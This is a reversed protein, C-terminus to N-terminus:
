DEAWASQWLDFTLLGLLVDANDERYHEHADILAQVATPEFLGKRRVRDAALSDRLLERLEHRFWRGVPCGFGWKRKKFVQAPLHPRMSMKQIYRLRAGKIKLSSPIRAVAEVLEHDLFPVRAEVSTAMTMNDTLLLLSEPLSTKLDLHIM